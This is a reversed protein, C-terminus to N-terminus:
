QNRIIKITRKLQKGDAKLNLTATYVGPKLSNSNIVYKHQGSALDENLFLNVVKGLMDRVEITAFGSFPLDLVFTTTENFPNPYNAFGLSSGDVETIGVSKVAVRDALLIVNPIVDANGNALENRPDGKLNLGITEGEALTGILRVKLTVVSEGANVTVPFGSMWGLRLETGDLNFMVSNAENGDMWADLIELKDAPFEMIMSLAGIELNATANLPLEFETGADVKMVEAENLRLNASESKLAPIYSGNFDGTVMGYLDLTIPGSAEPVTISTYKVNNDPTGPNASITENIYFTWKPRCITNAPPICWGITGSTLFYNQIRTADNPLLIHNMLVDGAMFKVKQIEFPGAAWEAVKAADTVNVPDPSPPDTRTPVVTYTGPCVTPFSYQGLSNTTASLIEVGGQQLSVTVGGIPSYTPPNYYTITGSVVIPDPEIITESTLILYCPTHAADRIYVDYSGPTLGTFSGSVQWSLPLTGIAFEYTGYGGEPSSVTITGNNAGNCTIDTKTVTADLEDPESVEYAEALLVECNTHAADRIFLDYDGPALGTFTASAQWDEGNISYEYTGYGGDPDSFTITADSVGFCTADTHTYLATLPDPESIVLAPDLIIECASHAADRIKVEYSGPALDIFSGSGQWSSNTIFYEYTGYGGEPDSITITGDDNANCTVDTKSVTANLVDPQTITISAVFVSCAVHEGDRMWLDYSGPILGTFEYSDTAPPVPAYWNTGDISAEYTGYGGAMDTISITGDGADFCTVNSSTSNATLADPETITADGTTTCGTADITVTVEYLGPALGSIDRDTSTYGNPGSWNFSVGTAPTTTLNIEGDNAGNCTVMTSDILDITPLPNVIVTATGTLDQAWAACGSADEVGTPWYTTTVAPTVYVSHNINTIGSISWTNTGDTFWLTFPPTGTFTMQVEGIEGACIEDGATFDVKPRPNAVLAPDMDRYYFSSPEDCFPLGTEFSVYECADPNLVEWELDTGLGKSVFQILFLTDGDPVQFASTGFGGAKIVGASDGNLTFPFSPYKTTFDVYELADEDYNLTLSIVGVDEFNEVIIPVYVDSGECIPTPFPQGVYTITGVYIRVSDPSTNSCYADTVSSIKWTKNTNHLIWLTDPSESTNITQPSVGDTIVYEWPGSGTLEIKLMADSGECIHTTGIASLSATPLPRVILSVDDTGHIFEDVGLVVIADVTLDFTGILSTVSPISFNWVDTGANGQLPLPEPLGVIDSLYLEYTAAPVLYSNTAAANFGWLIETGAPIEQVSTIKADAKIDTNVNLITPYTVTVSFALPDVGNCVEIDTETILFDSYDFTVTFSDSGLLNNCASKDTIYSVADLTITSTWPTDFGGITIDWDVNLGSHGALPYATGGLIDSLYVTDNTPLAYEAPLVESGNYLVSTVKSGAPFDLTSSIRADTLVTPDYDGLDNPYGATVSIILPTGAITSMDPIDTLTVDPLGNKTTMAQDFWWPSYDVDGATTEIIISGLGCPNSAITPGTPDSYWNSVADLPKTSNIAITVDFDFNNDTVQVNEGQNSVGTGVSSINAFNNNDIIVNDGGNVIGLEVDNFFNGTINTNDANNTIGVFGTYPITGEITNDTINLIGTLSGEVNIGTNCLSFFSNSITGGGAGNQVLVGDQINPNLSGIMGINDILFNDADQFVKIVYSASSLIGDFYQITVNDAIIDVFGYIDLQFHSLAPDPMLTLEKNITLDENYTTDVLCILTDGNVTPLDNIAETITLYCLGTNINKVWAQDSIDPSGDMDVEACTARTAKVTYENPLAELAPWDIPNGTGAVTSGEAVGDKYLQYNVIWNDTAIIGFSIFATYPSLESDDLTVGANGSCYVAVTDSMTYNNGQVGYFGLNQVDPEDYIWVQGLLRAGAAVDNINYGNSVLNAYAPPTYVYTVYLGEEGANTGYDVVFNFPDATTPYVLTMPVYTGDPKFHYLVHFNGPVGGTVGITTKTTGDWCFPDGTMSLQASVGMGLLVVMLLTLLPKFLPHLWGARKGVDPQDYNTKM